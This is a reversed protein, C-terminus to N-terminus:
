MSAGGAIPVATSGSRGEEPGRTGVIEAWADRLTGFKRGYRLGVSPTRRRGEHHGHERELGRPLLTRDRLGAFDEAGMSSLLGVYLHLHPRGSTQFEKVWM